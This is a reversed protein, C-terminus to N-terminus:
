GYIYKIFYLLKVSIFCKIIRLQNILFISSLTKEERVMDRVNIKKCEISHHNCLQKNSMIKRFGLTCDYMTKRYLNDIIKVKCSNEINNLSEM